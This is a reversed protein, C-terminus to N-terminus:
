DEISARRAATVSRRRLADAVIPIAIIGLAAAFLFPNLQGALFLPWIAAARRVGPWRSWRAEERPEVFEYGCAICTLAEYDRQLANDCRPCFARTGRMVPRLVLPAAMEPEPRRATTM